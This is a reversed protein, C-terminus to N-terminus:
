ASLCLPVPELIVVETPQQTGAALVEVVVGIGAQRQLKLLLLTALVGIRLGPRKGSLEVDTATPTRAPQPPV